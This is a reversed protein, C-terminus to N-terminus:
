YSTIHIGLIISVYLPYRDENGCNSITLTKLANLNQFSPIVDKSVSGDLTLTLQELQPCQELLDILLQSIIQADGRHPTSLTDASSKTCITLQRTYALHERKMAQVCAQM